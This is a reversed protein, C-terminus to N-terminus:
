KARSIVVTAVIGNPKEAKDVVDPPLHCALPRSLPVSVKCDM